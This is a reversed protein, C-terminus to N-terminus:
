EQGLPTTDIVLTEVANPSTTVTYTLTTSQLGEIMTVGYWVEHGNYTARTMPEIGPQTYWVGVDDFFADPAFDGEVQLDTIVGGMPAFLYVDLIM